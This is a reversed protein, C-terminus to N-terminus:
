SLDGCHCSDEHTLTYKPKLGWWSLVCVFVFVTTETFQPSNGFVEIVRISVLCYKTDGLLLGVM